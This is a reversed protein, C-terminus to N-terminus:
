FHFLSSINNGSGLSCNLVHKELWKISCLHVAGESVSFWDCFLGEQCQMLEIVLYKIVSICLSVQSYPHDSDKCPSRLKRM